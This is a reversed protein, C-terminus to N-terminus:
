RSLLTAPSPEWRPINLQSLQNELDLQLSTEERQTCTGTNSFVLSLTRSLKTCTFDANAPPHLSYYASSLDVSYQPHSPLKRLLLEAINMLRCLLDRSQPHDPPQIKETEAHLAIEFWSPASHCTFAPYIEYFLDPDRRNQEITM